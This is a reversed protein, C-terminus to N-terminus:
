PDNGQEPDADMEERARELDREAMEMSDVHVGPRGRFNRAIQDPDALADISFALGHCHLCAPRIMKSNPSLDASQNHDVLIRSVWDNVDYKIRPMHCSACSVGSGAPLEGRQERQWLRHHPSDTYARSHTDDHCELCAEVAAHRSDYRHPSHCSNCTLQSHAVDAHMPLQAEGPTMPPLEAALRMGHKGRQFRKVELDHCDGCNEAGPHDTWLPQAEADRSLLHCASCNVGSRAHATTAWDNLLTAEVATGAPADAMAADLPEVPYRDSPYDMLEELVAAFERAPLQPTELLDPEHLHKVLFDTYLARNNHFNHCGADTCTTFDMGTHSPRDEAIDSHCHFCVDRPQTVGNKRTIEPRHEQHCTVCRLANIHELRDANRPDTFKTRPHSDFPKKRDEGHCKICAEQLVKGGGLADGHCVGCNDRLQHHGPSLPGPMFLTKNNDTLLMYCLGAVLGGTLLLWAAWLTRNTRAGM